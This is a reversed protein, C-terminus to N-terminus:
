ASSNFLDESINYFKEYIVLFMQRFIYIQSTSIFIKKLFNKQSIQGAVPLWPTLVENAGPM